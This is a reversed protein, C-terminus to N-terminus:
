YPQLGWPTAYPNNFLMNPSNNDRIHIEAGFHFNENFSYDFGLMMGQSKKNSFAQSNMIPTFNNREMYGAGKIVLKPNLQYSAAAYFLGSRYSNGPNQLGSSQFGVLPQAHNGFFSSSSFTMGIDLKLNKLPSFSYSPSIYSMSMGINNGFSASTGTQLSFGQKMTSYQNYGYPKYFLSGQASVFFYAPFLALILLILKKM